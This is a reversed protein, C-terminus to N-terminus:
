LTVGKTDEHLKSEYYYNVSEETNDILNQEHIAKKQQFNCKYVGIENKKNHLNDVIFARYVFYPNAANDLIHVSEPMNIGFQIDGALIGHERLNIFEEDAAVRSPYEQTL